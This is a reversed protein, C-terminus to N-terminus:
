HSRSLRNPLSPERLSHRTLVTRTQGACTKRCVPGFVMVIDLNDVVIALYHRAPPQGLPQVPNGPQVGQDGLV